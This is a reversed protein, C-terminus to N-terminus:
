VLKSWLSYVVSVVISITPKQEQARHLFLSETTQSQISREFSYRQKENRIVNLQVAFLLGSSHVYVGM